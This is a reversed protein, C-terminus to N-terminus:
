FSLQKFFFRWVQVNSWRADKFFTKPPSKVTFLTRQVPTQNVTTLEAVDGEETGEPLYSLDVIVEEGYDESNHTLINLVRADAAYKKYAWETTDYLLPPHNGDTQQQSSTPHSPLDGTISNHRSM